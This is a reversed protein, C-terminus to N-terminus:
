KYKEGLILRDVKLNKQQAYLDNMKKVGEQLVDGRRFVAAHKQMTKQMQLRLDATSIDGNAHRVQISVM